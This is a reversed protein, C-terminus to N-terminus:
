RELITINAAVSSQLVWSVAGIDVLVSHANKARVCYRAGILGLDVLRRRTGATGGIASVTGTSNVSCDNLTM